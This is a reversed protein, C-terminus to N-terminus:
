YRPRDRMRMRPGGFYAKKIQNGSYNLVLVFTCYNLYQRVLIMYTADGIGWRQALQASISTKQALDLLVM